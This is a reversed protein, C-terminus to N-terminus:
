NYGLDIIEDGPVMFYRGSHDVAHYRGQDDPDMPLVLIETGRSVKIVRKQLPAIYYANGSGSVMQYPVIDKKGKGPGAKLLADVYAQVNASGTVEKSLM